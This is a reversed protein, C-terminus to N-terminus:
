TSSTSSNEFRQREIPPLQRSSNASRWRRHLAARDVAKRLSSASSASLISGPSGKEAFMGVISELLENAAEEVKDISDVYLDDSM